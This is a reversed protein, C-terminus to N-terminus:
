KKWQYSLWNCQNVPGLKEYLSKAALSFGTIYAVEIGSKELTNFCARLLKESLGKRRFEKHTCVKEVEATKNDANVFALCSSVHEGSNTVVSLDYYPNYIPSMRNYEYIREDLETVHDKNNFGNNQLLKKAKFNQNGLMNVIQFGPELLTDNNVTKLDYKMTIAGAGNNCFGQKELLHIMLEDTERIDISLSANRNGWNEKTWQLIEEILFEFERKYFLSFMEDGDESIIFGLLDDEEGIWLQANKMFFTPIFKSEGWLGYKWDCIRGLSWQFSDGREEYDRKIFDWLKNFDLSEDSYPRTKIRM